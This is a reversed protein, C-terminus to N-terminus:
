LPTKSCPTLFIYDHSETLLVRMHHASARDWCYRYVHGLFFFQEVVDTRSLGPIRVFSNTISLPRFTPDRLSYIGRPVRQSSMAEFRARDAKILATTGGTANINVAIPLTVLSEHIQVLTSAHVVILGLFVLSLTRQIAM